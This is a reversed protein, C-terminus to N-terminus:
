VTALVIRKGDFAMYGIGTNLKLVYGAGPLKAHDGEASIAQEFNPVLLVYGTPTVAVFHKGCPSVHVACFPNPRTLIAMKNEGVGFVRQSHFKEIEPGALWSWTLSVMDPLPMESPNVTCIVKGSERSIIRLGVVTCIFVHRASIEVYRVDETVTSEAPYINITQTLTASPIDYLYANRGDGTVVALTPYVFRTARTPRPTQLTCFPAFVGASTGVAGPSGPRASSDAKAALQEDSPACAPLPASIHDAERRWVEMFDGRGTLILFGHDYECHAYRTARQLTSQEAPSFYHQFTWSVCTWLDTGLLSSTQFIHPM